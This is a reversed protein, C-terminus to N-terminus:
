SSARRRREQFREKVKMAHQTKTKMIEPTERDRSVFLSEGRTRGYARSANSVAGVKTSPHSFDFGTGLFYFFFL